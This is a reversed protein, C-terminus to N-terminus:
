KLYDKLLPDKKLQRWDVHYVEKTINNYVVLLQKSDYNVVPFCGWQNELVDTDGILDNFIGERLKNFNSRSEETLDEPTVLARKKPPPPPPPPQEEVKKKKAEEEERLKKGVKEFYYDDIIGHYADLLPKLPNTEFGEDDPVFQKGSLHHEDDDDDDDDDEDNNRTRKLGPPPPTRSSQDKAPLTPAQSDSTAAVLSPSEIEDLDLTLKPPQSGPISDSSLTREQPASMKKQSPIKFPTLTYKCM